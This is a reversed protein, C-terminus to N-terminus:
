IFLQYALRLESPDHDMLVTGRYDFGTKTILHQMLKNDPHTDIRVQHYGFQSSLTLLGSIMKESLHQGRFDSSMATRHIATYKADAAGQWAGDAIVDYNSDHDPLLAATGAIQNDIILVYGIQNKVDAELAELDPYGDQWQDIGQAKLFEKASTIIKSVTPLDELTTKRLYSVTLSAM